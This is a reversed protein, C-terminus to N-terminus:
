LTTRVRATHSSYERDIEVRSPRVRGAGVPGRVARNVVPPTSRHCGPLGRDVGKASARREVDAAVAIVVVPQVHDAVVQVELTRRDRQLDQELVQEAV